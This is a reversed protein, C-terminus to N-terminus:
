LIQQWPNQQSGHGSPGPSHSLAFPRLTPCSHAQNICLILDSASSSINVYSLSISLSCGVVHPSTICGSCLIFVLHLFVGGWSARFERQSHMLVSSSIYHTEDRKNLGLWLSALLPPRINGHIVKGHPKAEQANCYGM